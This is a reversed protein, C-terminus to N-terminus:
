ITPQQTMKEKGVREAKVVSATVPARKSKSSEHVLDMFRKPITRDCGNSITDFTFQYAQKGNTKYKLMVTIMGDRPKNTDPMPSVTVGAPDPHNPDEQVATMEDLPIAYLPSPDTKEGFVFCTGAKVLIYKRVEGYSVFDREDYICPFLIQMFNKAPAGRFVAAPCELDAGSGGRLMAVSVSSSIAKDNQPKTTEYPSAPDVPPVPSARAPESQQVMSARAADTYEAGDAHAPEVRPAPEALNM